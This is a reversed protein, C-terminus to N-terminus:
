APPRSEVRRWSQKLDVPPHAPRSLPVAKHELEPKFSYCVVIVRTGEQREAAALPPAARRREGCPARDISGVGRKKGSRPPDPTNQLPVGAPVRM